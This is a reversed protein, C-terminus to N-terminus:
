HLVFRLKSFEDLFTKMQNVSIALYGPDGLGQRKAIGKFINTFNNVLQAFTITVRQDPETSQPVDPSPPQKTGGSDKLQDSVDLSKQLFLNTFFLNFHTIFFPHIHKAFNFSPM